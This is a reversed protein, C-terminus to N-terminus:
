VSILPGGDNLVLLMNIDIHKHRYMSLGALNSESQVHLFTCVLDSPEEGVPSRVRAALNATWHEVSGICIFDFM